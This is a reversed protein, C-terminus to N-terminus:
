KRASRTSATTASARWDISAVCGCDPDLYASGGCVGQCDVTLCTSPDSTATPDYNCAAPDTCGIVEFEDCIGDGDTDVLCDGNCDYGADPQVCNGDDATATPDYNCAGSDTCGFTLNAECAYVAFVLDEMPQIGSSSFAAGGPYDLTCGSASVGESLVLVYLTDKEVAAGSFTFTHESYYTFGNSGTLCNGPPESATISNTSTAILNGENWDSGTGNYRRLELTANSGDCVALIVSDLM